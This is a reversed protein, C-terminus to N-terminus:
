LVENTKCWMDRYYEYIVQLRQINKAKEGSIYHSHPFTLVLEMWSKAAWDGRSHCTKRIALAEQITM